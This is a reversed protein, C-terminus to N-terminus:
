NSFRACAIILNTGFANVTVYYTHGNTFTTWMPGVDNTGVLVGSYPTGFTPWLNTRNILVPTVRYTQRFYTGATFGSFNTWALHNTAYLDVVAGSSPTILINTVANANTAAMLTNMSHGLNSLTLSSSPAVAVVKGNADVTLNTASGSPAALYVDALHRVTNRNTTNQSSSNGLDISGDRFLYFQNVSGVGVRTNVRYHNSTWTSQWTHVSGGNDGFNYRHTINDNTNPNWRYLSNQNTWNLDGAAMLNTLFTNTGAGNMTSIKNTVLGPVLANVINTVQSATTGNTPGIGGGGGGPTVGVAGHALPALLVLVFLLIRAYM